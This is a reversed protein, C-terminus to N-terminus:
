FHKSKNVNLESGIYNDDDDILSYTLVCSLAFDIWVIVEGQVELEGEWREQRISTWAALKGGGRGDKEVPAPPSSVIPDTAVGVRVPDLERRGPRKLGMSGISRRGPKDSGTSDSSRLTSVLGSCPM